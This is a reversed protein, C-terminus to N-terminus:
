HWLIWYSLYRPSYTPADRWARNRRRFNRQAELDGTLSFDKYGMQGFHVWNGDPDEIMYKKNKRTSIRIKIDEGFFFRANKRVKAPNSYRMLEERKTM